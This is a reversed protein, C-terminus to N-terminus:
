GLHFPLTGVSVCPSSGQVLIATNKSVSKAIKVEKKGELGQVVELM